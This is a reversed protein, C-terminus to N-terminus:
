LYSQDAIANQRVGHHSIQMAVERNVRLGKGGLWLIEHDLEHPLYLSM